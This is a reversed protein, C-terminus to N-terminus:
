QARRSHEVGIVEVVCKIPKEVTVGMNGAEIATARGDVRNGLKCPQVSDELEDIQQGGV